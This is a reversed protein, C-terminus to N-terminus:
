STTAKDGFYKNIMAVARQTGKEKSIFIGAKKCKQHMRNDTKVKQIACSLDDSNLKKYNLPKYAYGLEHIHAARAKQDFIHPVPISPLGAKLVEATTGFGFHHVVLSVKKLLWSYPVQDILFINGPLSVDKISLDTMILLARSQAKSVANCIIEFLQVTQEKKHFMSGFTILLPKEGADMFKQLKDAPKFDEQTDALLFGTIETTAKWNPNPKLLLGSVPVLALYPHNSGAGIPPAGIENCFDKYPKGFLAGLLKDSLFITFEKLINKTKWYDKQLGMTEISVSVFPKDLMDAESRGVIGHGVVLDFDKLASLLDAHCKRLSDFIFNLAFRFGKLTGSSKEVFQRATYHIDMDDGIPFCSLKYSQILNEAWPHTLISVAHGSKQLALGLAIYPQIDGRSGITTLAINM